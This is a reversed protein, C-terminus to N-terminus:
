STKDNTFTYFYTTSSISEEGPSVGKQQAKPLSLEFKKWDIKAEENMQCLLFSKADVWYTNQFSGDKTTLTSIIKYCDDTGIKEKGLLTAEAKKFFPYGWPLQLLAAPIVTPATAAIGTAGAIAMEVNTEKQTTEPNRFNYPAHHITLTAMNKDGDIHYAGDDTMRGDIHLKGSRNFIIKATATERSQTGNKLLTQAVVSTSGSYSPLAAYTDACKQLIQNATLETPQALAAGNSICLIISLLLLIKKM